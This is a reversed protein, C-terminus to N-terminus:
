SDPEKGHFADMVAMIAGSLGCWILTYPLCIQGHLNLPMRRYDWVRHRRNWIRGVAYEIATIGAGCIGARLPLSCQMRRVRSILLMSAGGALAMSAHTRGRWILELAPYGVAGFLFTKLMMIVEEMANAASPASM